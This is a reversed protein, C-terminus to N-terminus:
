HRDKGKAHAQSKLRESKKGFKVGAKWVDKAIGRIWVNRNWKPTEMEKVKDHCCLQIMKLQGIMETTYAALEDMKM